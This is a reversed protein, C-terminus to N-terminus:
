NVSTEEGIFNLNLLLAASEHKCSYDLVLEEEMIHFKGTKCGCTECKLGNADM